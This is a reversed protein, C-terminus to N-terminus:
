LIERLAKLDHEIEDSEYDLVPIHHESMLQLFDQLPMKLLEAVRSPTIQKNRVMELVAAQTIREEAM